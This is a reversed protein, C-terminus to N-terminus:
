LWKFFFKKELVVWTGLSHAAENLLPPLFQLHIIYRWMEWWIIQVEKWAYIFIDSPHDSFFINVCICVINNLGRKVVTFHVCCLFYFHWQVYMGLLSLMMASTAALSVEQCVKLVALAAQQQSPLWRGQNWEMVFFLSHILGLHQM